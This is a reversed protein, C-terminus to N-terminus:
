WFKWWKKREEQLKQAQDEMERITEESMIVLSRIQQLAQELSLNSQTSYAESQARALGLSILIRGSHIFSNEVRSRLGLTLREIEDDQDVVGQRRSMISNNLANITERYIVKASAVEDIKQSFLNRLNGLDTM